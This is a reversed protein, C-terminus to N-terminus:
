VNLTDPKPKNLIKEYYSYHFLTGISTQKHIPFCVTTKFGRNCGNTYKVSHHNNLMFTINIHSRKIYQQNTYALILRLKTTLHSSSFSNLPELIKHDTSHSSPSLTTFQRLWTSQLAMHPKIFPSIFHIFISHTFTKERLTYTINLSYSEFHL